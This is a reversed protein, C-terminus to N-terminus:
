QSAVLTGAPQFGASGPLRARPFGATPRLGAQAWAPVSVSRVCGECWFGTGGPQEWPWDEPAECLGANVPNHEVYEVASRFHHEDRIARDFYEQMWFSGRRGLHQNAETATFSKWSHVISSLTRGALPTVVVHVHNPMVCWAHLRYREGDFHWLADSVM